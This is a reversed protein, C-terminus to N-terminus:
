QSLACLKTLASHSIRFLKSLIASNNFCFSGLKVRYGQKHNITCLVSHVFHASHCFKIKKQM